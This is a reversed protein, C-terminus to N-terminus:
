DVDLVAKGAVKRGFLAGSAEAIRSWSGRWGVDVHLKGAQMLGLLYAIDDGAHPGKTFAEIRRSM